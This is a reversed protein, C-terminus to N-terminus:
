KGPKTKGMKKINEINRIQNGENANGWQIESMKNEEPENGWKIKRM